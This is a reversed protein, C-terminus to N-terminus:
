MLVEGLVINEKFTHESWVSHMSYGVSNNKSMHSNYQLQHFIVTCLNEEELYNFKIYERFM